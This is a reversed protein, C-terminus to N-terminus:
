LLCSSARAQTESPPVLAPIRPSEPNVLVNVPRLALRRFSAFRLGDKRLMENRSGTEMISSRFTSALWARHATDTTTSLTGPPADPVPLAAANSRRQQQSLCHLTGFGLLWTSPTYGWWWATRSFSGSYAWRWGTTPTRQLHPRLVAANSITSTPTAEGAPPRWRLLAAGAHTAAVVEPKSGDELRFDEIREWNRRWPAFTSTRPTM